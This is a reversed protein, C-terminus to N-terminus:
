RSRSRCRRGAGRAPTACSSSPPSATRTRCSAPSASRSTPTRRASVKLGKQNVLKKATRPGSRASSRRRRAPRCRWRSRGAAARAARADGSPVGSTTARASRARRASSRSPRRRVRRPRRPVHLRRPRRRPPGAAPQPHRDRDRPEHRLEGILEEIVATSRPDLASCPEDMLLVEPRTAIARAICLRQQQGGSLRLAPRDLDDRSRTTSAPASCRTSSWRSSCPRARASADGARAARLRRQRLDVDPVPQAAPLGDGRPPAADTVELTDIDRATSCRDHRRPARERDARHPPQAHAAADDQRLGVPRDARAGRGPPDCISVDKVAASPATSCAAARRADHARARRGGRPARAGAGHDVSRRRARGDAALRRRHAAGAAAARSRGAGRGADADADAERAEETEDIM